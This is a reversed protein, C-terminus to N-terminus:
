TVLLPLLQVLMQIKKKKLMILSLNLVRSIIVSIYYYSFFIFIFAMLNEKVKNELQKDKSGEM